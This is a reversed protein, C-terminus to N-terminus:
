SFTRRDAPPMAVAAASPLGIRRGGAIFRCCGSLVGSIGAIIMRPDHSIRSTDSLDSSPRRSLYELRYKWFWLWTRLHRVPMYCCAFYATNAYQHFLYRVSADQRCGGSTASLHTVKATSCYRLVYGANQLRFSVDIEEWLANHRYNTDFGGIKELATRRFSMNAGMVSLTHGSQPLAFHQVLEGTSPNFQSPVSAGSPVNPDDVFGAVAGTAPDRYAKRHEDLLEESARTDDDLYLIVPNGGINLIANRAAPLNPHPQHLAIIRPDELPIEPKQDGQWVVFLRDDERLQATLAEILPGPLAPRNYTPILIDMAPLRVASAYADHQLTHGQAFCSGGGQMGLFLELRNSCTNLWRLLHKCVPVIKIVVCLAAALAPVYARSERLPKLYKDPYGTLWGLIGAPSYFRSITFRQEYLVRMTASTRIGFHGDLEAIRDTGTRRILMRDPWRSRYDSCESHIFLPAGSRCIRTIEDLVQEQHRLHGLTDITYLADIRSPKLPLHHADACIKWLSGWPPSPIKQLAEPSWDIAIVTAPVRELFFRAYSGIGAGLDVVIAHPLCRRAFRDLETHKFSVCGLLWRQLPNSLRPTATHWRGSQYQRRSFSRDDQQQM